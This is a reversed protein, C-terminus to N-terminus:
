ARPQSRIRARAIPRVSASQKTAPVGGFDPIIRATRIPDHFLLKGLYRKAETTQFAPDVRGDPLRPQPLDSDNAPVMLKEIRGVQRDIFRRLEKPGDGEDAVAVGSLLMVTIAVLVTTSALQRKSENRM